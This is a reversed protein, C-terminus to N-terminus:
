LAPTRCEEVPFGLRKLEQKVQDFAKQGSCLFSLIGSEIDIDLIRIDMIRSLNRKIVNKGTDSDLNKLTALAQM